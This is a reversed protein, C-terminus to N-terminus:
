MQVPHIGDRVIPDVVIKSYQGFVGLDIKYRTLTPKRYTKLGNRNNLTNKDMGTEGKFALYSLIGDFRSDTM